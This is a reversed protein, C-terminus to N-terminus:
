LLDGQNIIGPSNNAIAFSSYGGFVRRMNQIPQPERFSPPQFIGSLKLTQVLGPKGKSPFAQAFGSLECVTKMM